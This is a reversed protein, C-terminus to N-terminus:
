SANWSKVCIKKQVHIYKGFTFRHFNGGLCFLLLRYLFSYLRMCARVCVWEGVWGCM